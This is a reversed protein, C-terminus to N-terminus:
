VRARVWTVVANWTDGAHIGGIVALAVVAIM